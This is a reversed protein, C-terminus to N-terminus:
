GEASVVQIYVYDGYEEIWDWCGDLTDQYVDISQGLEITGKDNDPVSMGYGTDTFDYIGILDGISGDENVAYMICCKGLWESKGAVSLGQLPYSGNACRNGTWTYCTARIKFPEGYPNQSAEDANADQTHTFILIIILLIFVFALKLFLFWIPEEDNYKKGVIKEKRGNKMKMRKM